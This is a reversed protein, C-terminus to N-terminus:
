KALYQADSVAELWEVSSGNLPQAIALHSMASHESAGHWHRENAPIKVVDGPRVERIAEGESQVWGTGETIILTQGLPHTHWHTRAGASFEVIAGRYSDPIDAAFPTHIKVEGTFYDASGSIVEANTTVVIAKVANTDATTDHLTQWTVQARDASVPSVNERLIRIFEALQEDNYGVREAIGLHSRLQPETGNMASLMSITALERQKYTLVDRAFVAGFLHDVLYQDIIPTFAAYGTSRNSIDRGVLANRTQHGYATLDFDEVLPSAPKGEVDTIGKAQRTEIVEM